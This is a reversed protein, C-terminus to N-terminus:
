ILSTLFLKSVRKEPPVTSIEMIKVWRNWWDVPRECGIEKYVRVSEKDWSELTRCEGVASYYFKNNTM